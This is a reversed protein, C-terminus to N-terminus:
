GNRETESPVSPQGRAGVVGLPRWSRFRECRPLDVGQLFVGSWRAAEALAATETQAPGRRILNRLRRWDVSDDPVILEIRERDARLEVGSIGDLVGRLKSLSWRLAGRPDDPVDWLLECLTERREPKGSTALYALLARTKRSAPKSATFFSPPPSTM